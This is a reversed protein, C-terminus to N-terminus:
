YRSEFVYCPFNDWPYWTCFGLCYDIRKTLFYFSNMYHYKLSAFQWQVFTHPNPHCFCTDLAPHLLWMGSYRHSTSVQELRKYRIRAFLDAYTHPNDNLSSYTSINICTYQFDTPNGSIDLIVQCSRCIKLRLANQCIGLSYKCQYVYVGVYIHGM